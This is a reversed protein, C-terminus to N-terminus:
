WCWEVYFPGLQLSVYALDFSLTIGISWTAAETGVFLGTLTGKPVNLIQKRINSMM